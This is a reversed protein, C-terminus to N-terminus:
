CGKEIESLLEGAPKIGSRLFRTSQDECILIVPAAPANVVGIGYDDILARTLEIPSVAFIWDFGYTELHWRVRDEDENPDTDLSI